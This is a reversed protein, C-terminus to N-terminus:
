SRPPTPRQLRAALDALAPNGAPRHPRRRGLGDPHRAGWRGSMGTVGPVISTAFRPQLRMFLHIFSGYFLPDGESLLAVDRGDRLHAAIRRPAQKM